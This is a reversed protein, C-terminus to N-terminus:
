VGKGFLGARTELHHLFEHQLTQRIQKQYAEMGAPKLSAAFSGYHIRVQKGLVPNYIGLIYLDDALRDPHPYAQDEMVVNGNLEEYVYDPVLNMEEDVIDAFEDFSPVRCPGNDGREEKELDDGM